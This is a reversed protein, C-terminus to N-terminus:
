ALLRPRVRLRWQRTQGAAITPVAPKDAFSGSFGVPSPLGDWPEIALFRAGPIMWLGLRPCDPFDIQLGLDGSVGFTLSRSALRDFVVPLDVFLEDRPRLTRGEVPTPRPDPLLFIPDGSGRRIPAPEDHEFVLAYDAKSRQPALPWNFGPHFGVDAPMPEMGRNEVSITNLLAGDTLEFAVRLVFDFPYQKRTEDDASLELVIEGDTRQAVRLERTRAFGHDPMPYERGGHRFIGGTLPGIVPFLILAHDPWSSPDGQWLLEQGGATEVSLMQAGMPDVVVSLGDGSIAVTSRGAM